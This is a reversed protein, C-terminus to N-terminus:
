GLIGTSIKQAIKVKQSSILKKDFKKLPKGAHEIFQLKKSNQSMNQLSLLFYQALM